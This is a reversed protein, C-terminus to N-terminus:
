RPTAKRLKALAGRAVGVRGALLPGLDAVTIALLEAVREAGLREVQQRLEGATAAFGQSVAYMSVRRSARVSSYDRYPDHPAAQTQQYPLALPKGAPAPPLSRVAALRGRGVGPLGLLDCDGLQRLEGLATIGAKGLARMLGISLDDLDDILISDPLSAYFTMMDHDDM